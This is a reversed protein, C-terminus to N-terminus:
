TVMDMGKDAVPTVVPKLCLTALPPLDLVASAPQGQYPITAAMAEAAVPQDSGGFCAADTNLLM